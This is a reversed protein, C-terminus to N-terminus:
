VHGLISGSVRRKKCVSFKRENHNTSGILNVRFVEEMPNVPSGGRVRPMMRVRLKYCPACRVRDRAEFGTRSSYAGSGCGQSPDPPLASFEFLSEYRSNRTFFGVDESLLSWSTLGACQSWNLIHFLVSAHVQTAGARSGDNKEVLCVVLRCGVVPIIICGAPKEPYAASQVELSILVRSRCHM